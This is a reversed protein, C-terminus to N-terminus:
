IFLHFFGPCLKGRSLGGDGLVQFPVWIEHLCAKLLCQNFPIVLHIFMALAVSYEERRDVVWFLREVGIRGLSSHGLGSIVCYAKEVSCFVEFSDRRFRNTQAWMEDWLGNQIDIGNDCM